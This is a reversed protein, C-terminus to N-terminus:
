KTENELVKQYIRLTHAAMKGWSYKKVFENSTNIKKIRKQNDMRLVSEMCGVISVLSKPNFYEAFESYIEKFIPIDSALVLSGSAMTELGQLGFGEALSPYVFGESFAYLSRLDEDPVFGLYKVLSNAKKQKITKRLRQTFVSRSCVIILKVTDKRDKNLHLVADILIDINKHPYVNGVYIFYKGNIKYKKLISKSSKKFFSENVGEYTVEMKDPKIKFYNILEDRVQYTPVIIKRARKVAHRFTYKYPIRKFLYVLLPLKTANKGQYHMSMDHITAIFKGKWFIPVNFHPFHVLDPSCKKILLPLFIQEEFTYQRLGAKVKKWNKPVKLNNYYKEKLLLTFEDEPALVKLESILNVLYRGIGTNELGYLRADILIKM